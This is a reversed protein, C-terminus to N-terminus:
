FMLVHLLQFFFPFFAVHFPVHYPVAFDSSLLVTECSELTAVQQVVIIGDIFLCTYAEEYVFVFHFHLMVLTDDPYELTASSTRRMVYM